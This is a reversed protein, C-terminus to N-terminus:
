DHLEQSYLKLSKRAMNEWEPHLLVGCELSQRIWAYFISPQYNAPMGRTLLSWNHSLGNYHFYTHEPISAVEINQKKLWKQVFGFHDYEPPNASFNRPMLDIIKRSAFISCPHLRSQQYVGFVDNKCSKVFEFFGKRPYFDQETFWVLDANSQKLGSNVAINRWDGQTTISNEVFMCRHKYLDKIIFPVYNVGPTESFSIIINKFRSANEAIFKRYLPYDCNTPWTVLLDITM